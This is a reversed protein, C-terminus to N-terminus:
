NQQSETKGPHYSYKESKIRGVLRREKIRYISQSILLLGCQNLGAENILGESSETTEKKAYRGSTPSIGVFISVSIRCFFSGLASIKVMDMKIFYIM